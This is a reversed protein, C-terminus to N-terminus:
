YQQVLKQLAPCNLNNSPTFVKNKVTGFRSYIVKERKRTKNKREAQGYLCPIVNRGEQTLVLAKSYKLHQTTECKETIAKRGHMSEKHKRYM